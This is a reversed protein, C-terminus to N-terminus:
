GPVPAGLLKECVNFLTELAFEQTVAPDKLTMSVSFGILLATLVLAVKDPSASGFEGSKQGARIIGVVTKRYEDSLAQRAQRAREDRLAVKWLEIWFTSERDAVTMEILERLRATQTPLASMRERAQDLFWNKRIELVAILVGTPDDVWYSIESTSVDLKEALDALSFSSAGREMIAEAGAMVVSGFGVTPLRHEGM